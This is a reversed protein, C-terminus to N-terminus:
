WPKDEGKGRVYIRQSGEEVADLLREAQGATIPGTSEGEIGGGDTGPSAEGEPEGESPDLESPSVADSGEGEEPERDEPSGGGQSPDGPQGEPPGEQEGSGESDEGDSPNSEDDGEGGGEEPADGEGEGPESEEDEGDQPSQDEEKDDGSQPDPPPPPQQRRRAELAADVLERNAKAEDFGPRLQQAEDYRRAAEELRGSRFYANGANYAAGPDGGSLRNAEDYARAAGDFDGARYRAAGLRDFIAPDTPHELSLKTLEEAAQPYRGARYLEDAEQVTVARAPAAMSLGVAMLVAGAMGFRRRGDGLWAGGLWLLLAVSLPWPFAARWTERQRSSREVAVLSRSISDYLGRMDRDSAVSQVFGGGSIQAVEELVSFDPASMVVEGEHRLLGGSPTPIPSPEIGIGMAYIRVGRDAARTAAEVAAARDHIEGDSLVLLAQGAPGESRELATLAEDIALGLASGNAEFTNTDAAALVNQVAVM